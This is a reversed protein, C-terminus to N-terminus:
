IFSEIEETIKVFEDKMEILQVLMLEITSDFVEGTNIRVEEISDGSLNQDSIKEVEDITKNITNIYYQSFETIRKHYEVQIARLYEILYDLESIKAEANVIGVEDMLAISEALDIEAQARAMSIENMLLSCTSMVLREFESINANVLRGKDQKIYIETSFTSHWSILGRQFGGIYGSYWEAESGCRHCRFVKPRFGIQQFTNDCFPCQVYKM